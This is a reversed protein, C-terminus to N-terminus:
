LVLVRLTSSPRVPVTALFCVSALIVDTPYVFVSLYKELFQAGLGFSSPANDGSNTVTVHCNGGSQM